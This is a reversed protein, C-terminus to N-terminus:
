YSIREPSFHIRDLFCVGGGPWMGPYERPLMVSGHPRTVSGITFMVPYGTVAIAHYPLGTQPGLFVM